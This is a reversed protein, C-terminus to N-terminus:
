SLCPTDLIFLDGCQWTRWAHKRSGNAIVVHSDPSRTVQFLLAIYINGLECFM